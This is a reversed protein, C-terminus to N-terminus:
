GIYDGRVILRKGNITPYGDDCRLYGWKGKLGQVIKLMDELIQFWRWIEDKNHALQGGRKSFPKGYFISMIIPSNLTDLNYEIANLRDVIEVFPTNQQAVIWSNLDSLEYGKNKLAQYIVNINSRAYNVDDASLIELPETYRYWTYFNGDIEVQTYIM